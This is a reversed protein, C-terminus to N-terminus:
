MSRIRTKWKKKKMYWIGDKEILKTKKGYYKQGMDLWKRTIDIAQDISTNNRVSLNWNIIKKSLNKGLLYLLSIFDNFISTSLSSISIMCLRFSQTSIPLLLEYPFSKSPISSFSICFLLLPLPNLKFRWSIMSSHLVKKKAPCSVVARSSVHVTMNSALLGEQCSFIRSSTLSTQLPSVGETSWRGLSVWTILCSM